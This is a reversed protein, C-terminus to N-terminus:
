LANRGNSFHHPVYMETHVFAQHICAALSKTYSFILHYFISFFNTLTRETFSITTKVEKTIAIKADDYTRLSIGFYYLNTTPLTEHMYSFMRQLAKVTVEADKNDDYINNTGIHMVINKPNTDKLFETFGNKM